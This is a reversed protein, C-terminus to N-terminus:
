YTLLYELRRATKSNQPWFAINIITWIKFYINLGYLNLQSKVFGLFSPVSVSEWNGKYVQGRAPLSRSQVLSQEVVLFM